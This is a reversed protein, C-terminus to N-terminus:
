KVHSPFHNFLLVKVTDIIEYLLLRKKYRSFSLCVLFFLYIIIKCTIIKNAPKIKNTLPASQNTSPAALMALFSPTGCNITPSVMTAIPVLIGSAATLMVAASFSLAPIVMPFTTPLLMKFIKIIRPIVATIVFTAM